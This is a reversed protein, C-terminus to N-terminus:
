AIRLAIRLAHDERQLRQRLRKGPQLLIRQLVRPVAAGAAHSGRWDHWQL